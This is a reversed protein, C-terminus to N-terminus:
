ACFLLSPVEKNGERRKKGWVIQVLGWGGVLLVEAQVESFGQGVGFWRRIM